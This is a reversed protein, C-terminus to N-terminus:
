APPPPPAPQTPPPTTPQPSPQPPPPTPQPVPAPPTAQPSPPPTPSPKEEKPEEKEEKEKVTPSPGPIPVTALIEGTLEPDPFEEPNLEPAIALMFDNWIPAAVQGGTAGYMPIQGEPHGVWVCTTLVTVSGCFYVDSANQNTGTKGFIEFTLGDNAATGTGSTVVQKMAYIAQLVDNEELVRQGKRNNEVIVRGEPATIKHVPTAPHRVGGSAFTSFADTMELPTVELSGLTISCPVFGGEIELPSRIGMRHAVDAVSEPGVEAVLQAFITNVSFATASVLNMTGAGSDAYNGPQWGPCGRDSMDIQSPGSFVSSLSVGQEIAAMLTFPKFASGTQRGSGGDGTALNVQQRAFSAGGVMARVEGNRPDIAVLAARSTGPELSLNAAVARRAAVQWSPNLTGEIRFGGTFTRGGYHKEMWRRTYDIYYASPSKAYGKPPDVTTVPDNLIPQIESPTAFGLQVMRDLVYNRRDAALEPNDVPEYLSPGSILGALTASQALDLDRANIGFYTEAAAEVGYAGQGFYVTNLYRRFIEDKPLARELKIALLVEKIKREITRETGVEPFVNRVYQQTITSGGQEIRGGTFNAWAARIIAMLDVGSHRYFDEDEAAMVAERLVLPMQTFEIATRDVGAEFAALLKKEKYDFLFSTQQQKVNLDLPLRAYVFVLASLIIVAGALPVVWVWWM